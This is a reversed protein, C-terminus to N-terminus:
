TDSELCGEFRQLIDDMSEDIAKQLFPNPKQGKTSHYEGEADRYVWPVNKRGNGEKAYLGTGEHVYPAYEANSGISGVFTSNENEVRHTISARLTGDDSPCKDVAKNEISQCAGELAAMIANPMTEAAVRNVNLSIENM